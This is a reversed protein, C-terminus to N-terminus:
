SNGLMHWRHQGRFWLGTVRSKRYTGLWGLPRVVVDMRTDHIGQWDHPSAMLHNYWGSYTNLMLTGRRSAAGAEMWFGETADRPPSPLIYKQEHIPTYVHSSLHLPDTGGGWSELWRRERRLAGFPSLLSDTPPATAREHGSGLEIDVSHPADAFAIFDGLVPGWWQEITDLIPEETPRGMRDWHALGRAPWRWGLGFMTLQLLPIWWSPLLGSLHGPRKPAHHNGGPDAGMFWAQPVWHGPWYGEGCAADSWPNDDTDFHM